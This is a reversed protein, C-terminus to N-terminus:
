QVSNYKLGRMEPIATMADVVRTEMNATIVGGAVGTRVYIEQGAALSFNTAHDDGNNGCIARYDGPERDVYFFSGPDSLGISVNNLLIDPTVLNGLWATNRYFYIRGKDAPAAPMLAKMEMYSMEHAACAALLMAAAALFSHLSFRSARLM